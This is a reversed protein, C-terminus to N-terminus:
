FGLSVTFFNDSSLRGKNRYAYDFRFLRGGFARQLGGGFSFGRFTPDDGYYEYGFQDNSDTYEDTQFM